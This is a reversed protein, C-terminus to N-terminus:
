CRVNIVKIDKYNCKVKIAKYDKYHLKSFVKIM